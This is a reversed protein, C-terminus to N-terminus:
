RRTGFTHRSKNFRSSSAAPDSTPGSSAQYLRLHSIVSPPNVAVLNLYAATGTFTVNIQANNAVWDAASTRNVQSADRWNAASVATATQTALVTTGDSDLIQWAANQANNAEGAALNIQWTGSAPLDIRFTQDPLALSNAQALGALRPDIGSDRDRMYSVIDATAFGFTVSLGSSAMSRTTPYAEGLSYTTNAPDTVFGSTARFNFGIDYSM